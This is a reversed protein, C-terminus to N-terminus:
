NWSNILGKEKFSFYDPSHSHGIICHDVVPIGIIEASQLIRTTTEKDARSPTPDGTPHNHAIIIKAAGAKIAERFIEKPSVLSKDNLGKTIMVEKILYNKTDLCLLHFEEQMKHRLVPKLYDVVTATSNLLPRFHGRVNLREALTFAAQLSCAKAPGIGKVKCLETVDAQHISSLSNNFEKLLNKALDLTSLGAAGTNLLIALLESDSLAKAGAQSLRERPRETEPLDRILLYSDM